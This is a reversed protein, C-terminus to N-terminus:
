MGSRDSADMGAAGAAPKSRLTTCQPLPCRDTKLFWLSFDARESHPPPPHSPCKYTQGSVTDSPAVGISIKSESRTIKPVSRILFPFGFM